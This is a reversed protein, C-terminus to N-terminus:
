ASESAAVPREPELAPKSIPNPRAVTVPHGPRPPRAVPKAGRVWAFLAECHIAAVVKLTMLPHGLVARTVGWGSLKRYRGTQMATLIPGDPGSESIALSLEADPPRLAFDYRAAMGILPSVYFAKEASHWEIGNGEAAAVYAHTEGFTNNVEYIVAMLAGGRYCYFVSLPNFVFGWLRPFCLLRIAEPREHIGAAELMDHVWLRLPHGDRYGHDRDRFSLVNFRNHSLGGCISVADIDVFLSFVRYTFRRRPTVRMHMVRSLYLGPPPVSM